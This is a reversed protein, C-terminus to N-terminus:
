KVWENNIATDPKTFGMKCLSNTVLNLSPLWLPNYQIYTRFLKYVLKHVMPSIIGNIVKDM